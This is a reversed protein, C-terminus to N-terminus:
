CPTEVFTVHATRQGWSIRTGDCGEYIGGVVTTHSFDSYYTTYCEHDMKCVRAQAPAAPIAVVAIGLATALLIRRFM